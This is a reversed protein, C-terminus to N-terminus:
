AKRSLMWEPIVWSTAGLSLWLPGFDNVCYASIESANNTARQSWDRNSFPEYGM